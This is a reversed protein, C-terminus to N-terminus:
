ETISFISPIDVSKKLHQPTATRDHNDMVKATNWWSPGKLMRSLKGVILTSM